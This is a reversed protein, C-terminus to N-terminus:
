TGTPKGQVWQDGFQSYSSGSKGHIFSAYLILLGFHAVKSPSHNLTMPFYEVSQLPSETVSPVPRSLLSCANRLQSSSTTTIGNLYSRAKLSEVPCFHMTISNVTLTFEVVICFDCGRSGSLDSGAELSIAQSVYIEYSTELREDSIATFRTPTPSLPIDGCIDGYFQTGGRILNCM